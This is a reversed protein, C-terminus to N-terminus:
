TEIEMLMDFTSLRDAAYMEAGLACRKVSAAMTKCGEGGERRVKRTDVFFRVSTFQEAEVRRWRVGQVLKRHISSGCGPAFM